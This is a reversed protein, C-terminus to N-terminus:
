VLMVDEELIFKAIARDKRIHVHCRKIPEGENSYFFFKYGNWEFVKPM